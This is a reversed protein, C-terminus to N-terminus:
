VIYALIYKINRLVDMFRQKLVINTFENQRESFQFISVKQFYKEFNGKRKRCVKLFSFDSIELLINIKSFGKKYFERIFIQYPFDSVYPPTVDRRGGVRRM